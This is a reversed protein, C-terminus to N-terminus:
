VSTNPTKRGMHAVIVKLRPAANLIARIQDTVSPPAGRSLLHVILPVNAEAMARWARPLDFREPSQLIAHQKFGRAGLRLWYEVDDGILAFPIIRDPYSRYAGIVHTNAQIADVEELPYPFAIARSIGNADMRALLSQLRNEMPDRFAPKKRKEESIPKVIFEELGLHTHADVILPM